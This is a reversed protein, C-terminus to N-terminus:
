TTSSRAAPRRGQVDPQTRLQACVPQRHDPHRQRQRPDALGELARGQRADRLGPRRRPPQQQLHHPAIGVEAVAGDEGDFRTGSASLNEDTAWTLSCHDVIVNYAGRVTTIADFDTGAMKALGAEGPRVRIHRIVVDHTAIILGGRILTIGPMPATQGAITLFPESIRLERKGLDIVGGVEFVVIRPGPRAVAESCRAPGETALTTVRIIKGGRGGPTHAAWGLAGPFALQQDAAAHQRPPAALARAAALLRRALPRRAPFSHSAQQAHGAGRTPNSAQTERVPQGSGLM